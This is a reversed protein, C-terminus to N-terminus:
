RESRSRYRVVNPAFDRGSDPLYGRFRKPVGGALEHFERILHSQDYYGADQTVTPLDCAPDDMMARLARQFRAVRLYFAPRLGLHREFSRQVSRISVGAAEALSAVTVEGPLAHEIEQLIRSFLPYSTPECRQDRFFTDLVGSAADTDPWVRGIRAPLDLGADGFVDSLPVVHDTLHSMPEASFISLGGARFRAGCVQVPGDQRIQLPRTRQADITSGAVREATGDRHHREYAPGLNVVLDAQGDVYVDVSLHFEEEPPCTVFWYQSILDALDGAPSGLSYM